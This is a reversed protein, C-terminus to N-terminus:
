VKVSLELLRSAISLTMTLIVAIASHPSMVLVGFIDLYSRVPIVVLAPQSLFQLSFSKDKVLLPTRGCM